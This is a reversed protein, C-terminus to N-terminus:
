YLLAPQIEEEFQGLGQEWSAAIDAPSVGDQLAKRVSDTGCLVDFYLRSGSFTFEFQRPYLKLLLAVLEVATRVPQYVERDTVHVQLGGCHEGQHKSCMPSLYAERFVVGPLKLENAAQRFTPADVWPAGIIEFPRTTGRGESLNTGEFLCTGPYVVATDLTPMNPSPMVWPLGTDDYWMTRDWGQMPIVQLDCALGFRTVFLRALEGITLGHRTPLAYEGEFSAYSFEPQSIPGERHVGSIPNPRDLVWVPKGKEGCAKMVEGMTYLFTYFRAGIDQLDVLMVDIGHLSGSSPKSRSGFLGYVPVMLRDEIADDVQVGEPLDGRVGHEPGFMATIKIGAECLADSVHVLSATVSAHNALIGVRKDRLEDLHQNLLSELGTVIM